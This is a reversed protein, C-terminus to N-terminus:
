LVIFFPCDLSSVSGVNPVCSVPRLSVFCFLVFCFVFCFFLLILLVSGLLFFGSTFGHARSPYTNRISSLDIDCVGSRESEQSAVPVEIFLLPFLRTKYIRTEGRLSMICDQSHKGHTFLIGVRVFLQILLTPTIFGYGYDHDNHM